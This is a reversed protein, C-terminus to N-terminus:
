SGPQPPNKSSSAAEVISQQFTNGVWLCLSPATQKLPSFSSKLLNLCTMEISQPNTPPKKNAPPQSKNADTKKDKAEPITKFLYIGGCRTSYIKM